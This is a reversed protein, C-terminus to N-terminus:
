ITGSTLMAPFQVLLVADSNGTQPKWDRTNVLTMQFKYSQCICLSILHDLMPIYCHKLTAQCPHPSLRLCGLYSAPGCHFRANPNARVLTQNAAALVLAAQEPNYM